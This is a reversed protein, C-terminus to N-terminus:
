AFPNPTVSPESLRLNDSHRLCLLTRKRTHKFLPTRTGVLYVNEPRYDVTVADGRPPTSLL